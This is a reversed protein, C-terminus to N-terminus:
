TLPALENKTSLLLAIDQNFLRLGLLVGNNDVLLKSILEFFLVDKKVINLIYFNHFTRVVRSHKLLFIISSTISKALVERYRAVDVMQQQSLEISNVDAHGGGSRSVLDYDNLLSHSGQTKKASPLAALLLKLLTVLYKHINPILAL